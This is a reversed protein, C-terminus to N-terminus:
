GSRGAIKLNTGDFGPQVVGIITFLNGNISVGQNIVGPDSAFHQTWYRYSLVVLPSAGRAASDEPLFLRGFAPKVGLVSFYNGSVLESKVLSSSNKWQLGVQKPFMALMGSFVANQDRLDRYMPYSFYLENAGAYSDTHGTDSGVFKLQVLRDPESVPMQKLLVQDVLSFIAANAGIGVALTLVAVATFGPYKRLQRLAYRVNQLLTEM